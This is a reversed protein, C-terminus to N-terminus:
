DAAEPRAMARLPLRWHALAGIGAVAALALAVPVHFLSVIAAGVLMVVSLLMSGIGETRSQRLLPKAMQFANLLGLGVTAPVIGRLASALLPSSRYQAYTATLFITILVSPVLLGLLTALAGGWGKLRWGVLLTIGLLNIGPTAQCLSWDRTFSEEAIWRRREVVERRILMLTASGGGFALAGLKLFTWGLQSVSPPESDAQM